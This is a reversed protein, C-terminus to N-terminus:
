RMPGFVGLRRFPLGGAKGRSKYRDHIDRFKGSENDEADTIKTLRGGGEAGLILYRTGEIGGNMVEKNNRADEM